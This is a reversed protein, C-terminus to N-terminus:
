LVSFVNYCMVKKDKAGRSKKRAGFGAGGYEERIDLCMGRSKMKARTLNNCM